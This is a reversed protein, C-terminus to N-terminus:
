DLLRRVSRRVLEATAGYVLHFGLYTAHSKLPYERPHKSLKLAPVAIEDAAIWLLTAAPLGLGVTVDPALEAAAGYVAGMTTGFGFHVATGGIKRGRATLDRRFVRRAIHQALKETSPADQDANQQTARQTTARQQAPHVAVATGGSEVRATAYDPGARQRSQGSQPPQRDSASVKQLALQFATMVASGALGGLAGALTAKMVDVAGPAELRRRGGLWAPRKKWVRRPAGAQPWDRVTRLPSNSRFVRTKLSM